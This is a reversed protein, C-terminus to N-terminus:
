RDSFQFESLRLTTPEIQDPGVIRNATRSKLVHVGSQEAYLEKILSVSRMSGDDGFETIVLQEPLTRGDELETRGTVDIRRHGNHSNVIISDICRDKIIYTLGLEPAVVRSGVSPSRTSEFRVTAHEISQPALLAGTLRIAEMTALEKDDPDIIEMVGGENMLTGQTTKRPNTSRFTARWDRKLKANAANCRNADELVAWALGDCNSPMEDPQHVTLTTYHRVLDFPKDDHTGSRDEPVMARFSYIPTAPMPIEVQGSKDTTMQKIKMGEVPVLIEADTVPEGDFLVTLSLRGDATPKATIEADLGTLAEAAELGSVGKAHYQLLFTEGRSMLGYTFEACAVSQDTGLDSVVGYPRPEFELPQGDLGRSRAPSMLEVMRQNSSFDWASEAFHLEIRPECGRIVHAFLFHACAVEATFEFALILCVIFGLLRIM